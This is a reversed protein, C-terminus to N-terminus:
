CCSNLAEGPNINETDDYLGNRKLVESRAAKAEAQRRAFDERAFRARRQEPTEAENAAAPAPEAEPQPPAVEAQTAVEKDKEKAM